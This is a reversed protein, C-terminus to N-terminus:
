AAAIATFQRIELSWEDENAMLLLCSPGGHTRTRGAAGPNVVWPEESQDCVLRHTHGYVIVRADPHAKRLSSHCPAHFGHHEGHEVVLRGGPLDIEATTPLQRVIHSEDISWKEESDNNGRVAIVKELRPSLKELVSANGIDGAHVVYDALNVIEAIRHDLYAHTDSLIAVQISQLNSNKFMYKKLVEVDKDSARM